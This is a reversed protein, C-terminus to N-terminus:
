WVLLKQYHKTKEQERKNKQYMYKVQRLMSATMIMMIGAVEHDDKSASPETASEPKCSDRTKIFAILQDFWAGYSKEKQIKKIGTATKITSALKKIQKEAPECQIGCNRM